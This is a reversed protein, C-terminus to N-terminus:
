NKVRILYFPLLAVFSCFLGLLDQEICINFVVTILIKVYLKVKKKKYWLSFTQVQYVHTKVFVSRSFGEACAELVRKGKVKFLTDAASIGKIM